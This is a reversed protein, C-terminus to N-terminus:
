NFSFSPVYRCMIISCDNVGLVNGDFLEIVLNEGNKLNYQGRIKDPTGSKESRCLYYVVHPYNYTSQNPGAIIEYRGAPIDKGVDWVGLPIEVQKWESCNFLAQNVKEQLALLEDFSMSNLDQNEAQAACLILLLCVVIAIFRKM